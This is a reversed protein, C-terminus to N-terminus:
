GRFVRGNEKKGKLENIKEKDKEFESRLTTIRLAKERRV